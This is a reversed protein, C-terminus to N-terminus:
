FELIYFDHTNRIEIKLKVKETTSVAVCNIFIDIFWMIGINNGALM